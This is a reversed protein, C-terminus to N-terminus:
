RCEKSMCDMCIIRHNGDPLGRRWETAGTRCPMGCASCMDHVGAVDLFKEARELTDLAKQLDARAKTEDAQKQLDQLDDVVSEYLRKVVSVDEADRLGKYKEILQQM